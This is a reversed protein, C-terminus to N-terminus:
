DARMATVPDVRVARRAPLWTALLSIGALMVAAGAWAAANPRDLGFMESALVRTGAWALASGGLIGIVTAAAGYRLVMRGITSRDAGLAMRIGIERTRTGVVQAVVGYLGIGALVLALAAFTTLLSVTFRERDLTGALRARMPTTREILLDPEFSRLERRLAPVLSGPEVGDAARILIAGGVGRVGAAPAYMFWREEDTSYGTVLADDAIGVVTSFPAGEGGIRLRRGLPDVDGFLDRATSEALIIPNEDSAADDPEFTRGRVRQGLTRFYDPTVSPGFFMRTGELPAEGEVMVEGFHVGVEPPAGVALAVHEVGPLASIMRGIEDFAQARLEAEPYRWRPLVVDAVLVRDDDFGTEDAQLGVLSQLVRMSGVVLTFSLAIEGSVLAWRARSGAPAGRGAAAGSRLSDTGNSRASTWMPLLSFLVAAALTVVGGMAIVPGDLGVGGLATLSEPRFSLITDLGLRAFLVGLAGGGVGIALGEFLLQRAIRMRGAGLASRIATEGRRSQERALLLNSVNLCAILLLAVVAAMLITLQDRIRLGFQEVVSMARGTAEEGDPLEIPADLRAQVADLTVGERLRGIPLAEGDGPKMPIWFDVPRAFFGLIPTDPPMVGIVTRSEGDLDVTRGLVEPDAGFRAHWTEHSILAVPTGAEADGEVFGRGLRPTRRAFEHFGPGVLGVDVQSPEGTGTWTMSRISMTELDEFVDTWGAWVEAQAADPTRMSGSTGIPRMLSVLRDAGHYPVPRLLVGEVTSYIATTAGIGLAITLVAFATFGPRRRLTRVAYRVDDWVTTWGGMGGERTGDRTGRAARPTSGRAVFAAGHRRRERRLMRGTRWLDIGERVWRRVRAARSTEAELADHFVEGMAAGHKRRFDAPLLIRRLGRHIM